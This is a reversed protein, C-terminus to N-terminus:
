AAADAKTAQQFEVITKRNKTYDLNYKTPQPPHLPHIIITPNALSHLYQKVM